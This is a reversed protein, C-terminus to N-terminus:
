IYEDDERVERSGFDCIDIEKTLDDLPLWYKMKSWAGMVAYRIADMCHDNEKVPVEKGKEISKKDYEYVGFENVANEQKPAISMIDFVLVKQVRSIGLAVDNEADRLFVQYDM